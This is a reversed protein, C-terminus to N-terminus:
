LRFICHRIYIPVTPFTVISPKHVFDAPAHAHLHNEYSFNHTNEQSRTFLRVTTAARYETGSHLGAEKENCEAYETVPHLAFANTATFATYVIFLIIARLRKM